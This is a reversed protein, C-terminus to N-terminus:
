KRNKPDADHFAKQIRIRSTLLDTGPGFHLSLQPPIILWWLRALDKKPGFNRLLTM